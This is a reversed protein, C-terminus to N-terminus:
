GISIPLVGAFDHYQQIAIGLQRMNNACHSRRAAERAAQVAPLLLSMLIAIIGVVVVLEIITFGSRRVRARDSDCSTFVAQQHSRCSVVCWADGQRRADPRRVCVTDTAAEHSAINTDSARCQDPKLVIAMRTVGRCCGRRWVSCSRISEESSVGDRGESAACNM